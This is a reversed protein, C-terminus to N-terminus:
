VSMGQDYVDSKVGLRPTERMECLGVLRPRPPFARGTACNAAGVGRVDLHGSSRLSTSFRSASLLAEPPSGAGKLAAKGCRCCGRSWVGRSFRKRVAM